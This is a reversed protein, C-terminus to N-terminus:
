DFIEFFARDHAKDKTTRILYDIRSLHYELIALSLISLVFKRLTCRKNVIQAGRRCFRFSRELIGKRSRPKAHSHNTPTITAVLKKLPAVGLVKLFYTWLSFSRLFSKM